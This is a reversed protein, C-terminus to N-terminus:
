DVESLKGKEGIMKMSEAFVLNPIFILLLIFKKM